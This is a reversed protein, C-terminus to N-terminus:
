QNKLAKEKSKRDFVWVAFSALSGSGVIVGLLEKWNAFVFQKFSYNWNVEVKRFANFVEVEVPHITKIEPVNLEVIAQVVILNSGEKLPTIQWTWQGPTDTTIFKKGKKIELVKFENPQVILKMEVGAPDYRVGSQTFVDGRGQLEKRIKETIQPAIGAEIREPVAVQMKEPVNHYVQGKPFKTLAKKIAIEGAAIRKRAKVSEKNL